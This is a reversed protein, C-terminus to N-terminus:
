CSLQCCSEFFQLDKLFLFFINKEQLVFKELKQFILIAFTLGIQRASKKFLGRKKLM